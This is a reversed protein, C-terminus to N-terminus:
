GSIKIKNVFFRKGEDNLVEMMELPNVYNNYGNNINRGFQLDHLWHGGDCIGGKIILKHEENEFKTWGTSAGLHNTIKTVPVTLFSMFKDMPVPNKNWNIEIKRKDLKGYLEKQLSM